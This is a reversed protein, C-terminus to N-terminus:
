INYKLRIYKLNIPLRNVSVTFLFEYQVDHKAVEYELHVTVVVEDSSQLQQTDDDKM